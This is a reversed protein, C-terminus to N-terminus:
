QIGATASAIVVDAVGYVTVHLANVVTSVPSTQQENIVVQGGPIYVTQNPAGSIPIPVGNIALNDVNSIALGASGLAAFARAMVSDAGITTGAVSLALDGLAAESDVENGLGLTTAHLVDGTLLSPVSGTLASAQLADSSGGLAGTDGLVTTTAGLLGFVTAQVARAQGSATQAEVGTPWAFAGGLVMAFAIVSWRYSFRGNM